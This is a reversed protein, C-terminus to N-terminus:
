NKEQSITISQVAWALVGGWTPAYIDRIGL